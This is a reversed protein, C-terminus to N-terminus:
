SASYSTCPADCGALGCNNFNEAPSAQGIGPGAGKCTTLVTEEPKGRVLVILEPNRWEKKEQM